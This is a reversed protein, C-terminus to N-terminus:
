TAATLVVSRDLDENEIAEFLGRAKARGGRRHEARSLPTYLSMLAYIIKLGGELSSRSAERKV